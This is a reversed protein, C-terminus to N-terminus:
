PKAICAQYDTNLQLIDIALGVGSMARGARAFPAGSYGATKAAASATTAQIGFINLVTGTLQSGGDRSKSLGTSSSATVASGPAVQGVLAVELLESEGSLYGLATGATDGALAAANKKLAEARCKQSKGVAAIVKM